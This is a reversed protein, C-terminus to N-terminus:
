GAAERVSGASRDCNRYGSRVSCLLDDVEDMSPEDYDGAGAQARLLTELDKGFKELSHSLLSREFVVQIACILPLHNMGLSNLLRATM